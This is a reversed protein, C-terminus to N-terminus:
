FFDKLKSYHTIKNKNVWELNLELAAQIPLYMDNAPGKSLNGGKESVLKELIEVFNMPAAGFDHIKTWDHSNSFATIMDDTLVEPAYVISYEM